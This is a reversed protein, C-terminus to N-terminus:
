FDDFDETRIMPVVDFVRIRPEVPAPPVVARSLNTILAVAGDIKNEPFEKRPFINDNADTHCVVNSIMWNLVPNDDHVLKGAVVFKELEKMPDSLNNVNQRVEVLNLGEDSLDKVLQHAKWPDYSIERVRFKEVLGMIDDYIHHHDIVSGPILDFYGAQAWGEYHACTSAAREAVTDRPLYYKGFVYYKGDRIFVISLATVDIKSSLDFGLYCDYDVFDDICLHKNGCKEWHVMNMWSTSANVWVNMHKTLFNNQAQPQAQAQACLEKLQTDFLSVGLNPNAKAWVAPDTWDDAPIEVEVGDVFETRAQDITFVMGFFTDADVAKTLVKIAFDRVEYCIGSRNSGATTISWVLPQKRSGTSTVMVDYVERTRHAHLEDILAAHANKGDLSQADSSVPVFRSGSSRHMISDAMAEIGVKKFNSAYRSIMQKADGWVIKAQDRNRAASYVESGPEGDLALMYLGIGTTLFSKGNKRAVEIYVTRYKRLGTAKVILGFVNAIIFIQWDSLIVTPHDWTGKTHPLLEIFSCVRDVKASDYRLDKRKLDDLFRQCALRIYECAVSRGEVIDTAYKKAISNYNRKARAM